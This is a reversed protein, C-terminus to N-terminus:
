IVLSFLIRVEIQKENLDLQTINLENFLRKYFSENNNKPNNQYFIKTYAWFMILAFLAVYFM